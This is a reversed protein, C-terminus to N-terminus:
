PGEVTDCPGLGAITDVDALHQLIPETDVEAADRASRGPLSDVLGPRPGMCGGAGHGASGASWSATVTHLVSHLQPGPQPQAIM